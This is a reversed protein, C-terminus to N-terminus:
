GKYSVTFLYPSVQNMDLTVSAALCAVVAVLLMSAGLKLSGGRLIHCSCEGPNNRLSNNYITVSKVLCGIPVM